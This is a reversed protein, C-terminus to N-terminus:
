IIFSVFLGLFPYQPNKFLVFFVGPFADKKTGAKQSATGFLIQTFQEKVLCSGKM